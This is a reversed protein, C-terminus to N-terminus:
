PLEGASVRWATRLVSEVGPTLEVNRRRMATRATELFRHFEHLAAGDSGWAFARVHRHPLHPGFLSAGPGVVCGTNLLTGIATKVHDGLFCGIKREGTDVEGDPTWVRVNGYNNKLDSNTTLAGLNVWAGLYAHGIFGDHAKNSWGVLVSEEVEGRVKCLPGISVASFSGGLVVTGRGFWAPGAIRTLARVHVGDAFGIPGETDDLVVGPEIIVGQGLRVRRPASIAGAVHAPVASWGPGPAQELDAILQARNQTVFDWTHWLVRGDMGVRPLSGHHAAFATADHFFAASPAAAGAPRLWGVVDDGMLLFCEGPADPLANWSPVARASWWLRAGAAPLSGANVVPAGGPEDWDALHPAVHAIVPSGFVASVRDRLTLAGFRLEGAPRTLTFPHWAAAVADDFLVVADPKM